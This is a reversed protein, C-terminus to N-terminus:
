RDDRRALWADLSLPTPRSLFLVSLAMLYLLNLEYGVPGFQAGARRADSAESVASV